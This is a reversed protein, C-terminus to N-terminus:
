ADIEDIDVNFRGDANVGQLIFDLIVTQYVLGFNM